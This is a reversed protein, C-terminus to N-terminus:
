FNYRASVEAIAREWTYLDINSDNRRYEVSPTIQLRALPLWDAALGVQGYHDARRENDFLANRGSYRSFRYQLRSTLRWASAVQLQGVANFGGQWRDTNAQAGDSSSQALVRGGFLSVSTLPTLPAQWAQTLGLSGLLLDADSNPADDHDLHAYELGYRALLRESFQQSLSFSAGLLDQYAEGDVHLRQARLSLEPTFTDGPLRAGFRVGARQTDFDSEDPHFRAEADAGAFALVRPTVPHQVRIEASLTGFLDDRAQSEEPVTLEGSLEGLTVSIQDDSTASNVNTDYGLTLGVSGSVRTRRRDSREDMRQQYREITAVVTSPPDQARVIDFHHQARSDEGMLYYGRALELRARSFGPQQMVVRELAFVGEGLEGVQISAMGYYFDFAVDGELEFRHELALEHATAFDQQQVLDALDDVVAASVRTSMLALLLLGTAAVSLSSLVRTPGCLAHASM